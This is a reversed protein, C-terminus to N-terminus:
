RIPFSRKADLERKRDINAKRAKVVADVADTLQSPLSELDRALHQLNAEIVRVTDALNTELRDNDEFTLTLSTPAVHARTGHMLTQTSPAIDFAVSDGSFPIIVDVVDREHRRGDITNERTEKRRKGERKNFELVPVAVDMEKMLDGRLRALSEDEFAGEDWGQARESCIKVVMDIYSHVRQKHFM